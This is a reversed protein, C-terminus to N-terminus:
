LFCVLVNDGTEGLWFSTLVGCSYVSLLYQSRPTIAAKHIYQLHAVVTILTQAHVERKMKRAEEQTIM